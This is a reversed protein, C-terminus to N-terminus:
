VYLRRRELVYVGGDTSSGGTSLRIRDISDLGTLEQGLSIQAAGTIQNAGFLGSNYYGHIFHSRQTRRVTPFFVEAFMINSLGWAPVLTAIGSYVGSAQGRLEISLPQNTTGLSLGGIRLRYEYGDELVPSQITTIAGDVAFDYFRGNESGNGFTRNYPHWAAQNVPATPDCEAIAVPNDRLATITSGRPRGGTQVASNPLSTFTTM